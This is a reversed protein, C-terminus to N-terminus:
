RIRMTAAIHSQQPFADDFSPLNNLSRNYVGAFNDADTLTLSMRDASLKEGLIAIFREALDGIAFDTWAAM